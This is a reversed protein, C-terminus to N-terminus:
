QRLQSIQAALWPYFFPLESERMLVLQGTTQGRRSTGMAMLLRGNSLHRLRLSFQPKDKDPYFHTTTESEPFLADVNRQEEYNRTVSVLKVDSRRFVIQHSFDEHDFEGIRFQWSLFDRGFEAVFTPQGLMRAVEARTESMSFWQVEGNRLAPDSAAPIQSFAPAALLLAWLFSIAPRM